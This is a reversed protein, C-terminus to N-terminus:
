AEKKARLLFLFDLGINYLGSIRQWNGRWFRYYYYWAGRKKKREPITLEGTYASQEPGTCPYYGTKWNRKQPFKVVSRLGRKWGYTQRKMIEFGSNSFLYLLTHKPFFFIHGHKSRAPKHEENYFAILDRSDVFGNPVSLYFLGDPKIIRYCEQLVALPNPVHELVNNLHIYDFYHSPFNAEALDGLQVNLGLKTRAFQVASAGFDIGHVEWQSHQQIGHIFFGTACGVDLFKGTAQWRKLQRAFAM